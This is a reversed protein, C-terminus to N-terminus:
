NINEEGLIIRVATNAQQHAAIGVRAAMLGSGPHAESKNDGIIFLRPTVKTVVIENGSGYGAVGSAAVVPMDAIHSLVTRIIMAKMDSRDFAEIIVDVNRFIHPINSEDLTVCHTKIEVYPNMRTLNAKTADTKFMGIQDVFYHQRNLNSPEVVDFDALVLRGIGMRCLAAACCSGLGGLGAIGVSAKKLAEHVGPTHRAMMLSEMEQQGPVEGRKILQISDGDSLPRDDHIPFGNYILLDADPKNSNRLSFLTAGAELDLTKENITIKM